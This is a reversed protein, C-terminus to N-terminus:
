RPAASNLPRSSSRSFALAGDLITFTDDSACRPVLSSSMLLRGRISGPTLLPNWAYPRDFSRIFANVNSSARFNSPVPTVQLQRCGPTTAVFMKLRARPANLIIKVSERGSVGDRRVRFTGQMWSVISFDGRTTPELFLIAEEGNVFRPVGSVSSTLGGVTGGLLRVAIQKDHPAGKWNEEVEFTTFTWIEGTDWATSNALCRARVIRKAAHTMQAVSLRALTTGTAATCMALLAIISALHIRRIDM